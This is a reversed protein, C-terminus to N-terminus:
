QMVKILANKLLQIKAVIQQKQKTLKSNSKNSNGQLKGFEIQTTETDKSLEAIEEKLKQILKEKEAILNQKLRKNSDFDKQKQNQGNRNQEIQADLLRIKKYEEDIEALKRNGVECMLDFLNIRDDVNHKLMKRELDILIKSYENKKELEDLIKNKIFENRNLDNIGKIKKYAEEPKM